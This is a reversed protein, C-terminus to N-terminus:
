GARYELALRGLRVEDRHHLLYRQAPQLKERNLFTFNTSNLDELFLQAGEIVLRAHQRSVGATEGGHSALDIDPYIARAPDSRGIIVEAKDGPIAIEFQTDRIVLKGSQKGL